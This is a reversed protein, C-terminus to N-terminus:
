HLIGHIYEASYEATNKFYTNVIWDSSLRKGFSNRMFAVLKEASVGVPDNENIILALDYKELYPVCADNQQNQVHLIPMGMEIYTLLKSPLMDSMKNGINILCDSNKMEMALTEKDVYGRQKVWPHNKSFVAIDPECDGSSFFQVALDMEKKAEAFVNLLYAPSRFHSMLKGTYILRVTQGEYLSGNQQKNEIHHILPFDLYEFKSRYRDYKKHSYKKRNSEMHFIKDCAKFTRKEALVRMFYLYRGLSNRQKDIEYTIPDLEYLWLKVKPFKKKARVAALVADYPWHMVLMADYSDKSLADVIEQYCWQSANPNMVPWNWIKRLYLIPTKPSIAAAGKELTCGAIDVTIDSYSKFAHLLERLCIWNASDYNISFGPIVLIKM